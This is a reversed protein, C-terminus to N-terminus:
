DGSLEVEVHVWSPADCGWTKPLGSTMAFANERDRKPNDHAGGSQAAISYLHNPFSPGNASAFFWPRGAREREGVALLRRHRTAAAGDPRGSPGRHRRRSRPVTRVDRRLESEGQRHVRRAQHAM